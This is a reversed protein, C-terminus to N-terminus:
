IQQLSKDNTQRVNKKNNKNKGYWINSNRHM